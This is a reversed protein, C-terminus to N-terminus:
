SIKIENISNLQKKKALKKRKKNSINCEHLDDNKVLKSGLKNEFLDKIEKNANLYPTYGFKDKSNFDISTNNLLYEIIETKGESAAIHLLTRNDADTALIEAGCENYLKISDLDNYYALTCLYPGLQNNVSNVMGGKSRLFHAVKYHKYKCAYNLATNHLDDLENINLNCSALFETIEFFGNIAAIHLPTKKTNEIFSIENIEHKLKKLLVLNNREVLENLMSPLLSNAVVRNEEEQRELGM